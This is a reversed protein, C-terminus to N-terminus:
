SGGFIRGLTRKLKDTDAIRVIASLKLRWFREQRLGEADPFGLLASEISIQESQRVDFWGRQVAFDFKFRNTNHGLGFTLLKLAYGSFLYSDRPAQPEYALGFRFPVLFSQKQLIWELGANFSLTNRTSTTSLPEGDLFNVIEGIEGESDADILLWDKWLDHTADLAVTWLPDPKWSLGVGFSRPFEM